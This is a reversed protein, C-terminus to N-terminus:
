EQERSRRGSAEGVDRPRVISAHLEDLDIRILRPSLEYADLRGSAIWRRVTKVNVGCYEAADPITILRHHVPLPPPPAPTQKKANM